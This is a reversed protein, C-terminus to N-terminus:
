VCINSIQKRTITSTRDLAKFGRFTIISFVYVSMTFESASLERDIRTAFDVVTHLAIFISFNADFPLRGLGFNKCVKEYEYPEMAEDIRPKRRALMAPVLRAPAPPGCEGAAASPAALLDIASSLSAGAGTDPHLPPQAAPTPPSLSPPRRAATPM